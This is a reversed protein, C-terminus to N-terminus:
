KHLSFFGAETPNMKDTKAGCRRYFFARGFVSGFLLPPTNNELWVVVVFGVPLDCCRCRCCCCFFLLLFCSVVVVVAVLLFGAYQRYRVHLRALVM